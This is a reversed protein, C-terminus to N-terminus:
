TQGRHGTAKITFAAFAESNLHEGPVLGHGPNRLTVADAAFEEVALGTFCVNGEVLGKLFLCVLILDHEVQRNGPAKEALQYQCKDQYAAARNSPHDFQKPVQELHIDGNSCDVVDDVGTHLSGPGDILSLVERGDSHSGVILDKLCAPRDKHSGVYVRAVAIEQGTLIVSIGNGPSNVQQIQFLLSEMGVPNDRIRARSQSGPLSQRPGIHRTMPVYEMAQLLKTSQAGEQLATGSAGDADPFDKLVLHVLGPLLGVAVLERLFQGKCSGVLGLEELQGLIHVRKFLPHPFVDETQGPRVIRSAFLEVAEHKGLEGCELGEALMADARHSAAEFVLPIVEKGEGLQEIILEDLNAGLEVDRDLCDLLESLHFADVLGVGRAPFPFGLDAALEFAVKMVDLLSDDFGQCAGWSCTGHDLIEVAAQAVVERKALDNAGLIQIQQSEEEIVPGEHSALVPMAHSFARRFKHGAVLMRM